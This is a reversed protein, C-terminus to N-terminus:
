IKGEALRSSIRLLRQENQWEAAQGFKPRLVSNYEGIQIPPLSGWCWMIQHCGCTRVSKVMHEQLWNQEQAGEEFTLPNGVM